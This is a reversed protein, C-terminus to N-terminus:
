KNGTEKSTEDAKKEAEEKAKALAATAEEAQIEALTEDVNASKGIRM